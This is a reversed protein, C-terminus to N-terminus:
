DLTYLYAAIDRAEQGRVGTDPMATGPEFEHPTQIWRILNDPKNLLNGAIYTRMAFKSLSPGVLGNAAPVGPIDHCSGCGRQRIAIRGRSEDGGTLIPGVQAPEDCGALVVVALLMGVGKM